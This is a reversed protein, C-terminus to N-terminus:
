NLSELEPQPVNIIICEDSKQKEDLMCLLNQFMTREEQNLVHVKYALDAV